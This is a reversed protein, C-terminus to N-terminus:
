SDDNKKLELDTLVTPDDSDEDVHDTLHKDKTEPQLLVLLGALLVTFGCITTPIFPKIQGKFPLCARKTANQSHRVANFTM